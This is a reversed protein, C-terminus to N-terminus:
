GAPTGLVNVVMDTGPLSPPVKTGDQSEVVWGASTHALFRGDPFFYVGYASDAVKAMSGGSADGMFTAGVSTSPQLSVASVVVKRGDASFHGAGTQDWAGTFVLATTAGGPHMVTLVQSHLCLLSGDLSVDELRCSANLEVLVGTSPDLSWAGAPSGFIIRGGGIVIYETLYLKGDVWAIPTLQTGVGEARTAIATMQSTQTGVYITTSGGHQLDGQGPSYSWAWHSGDASFVPSSSFSADSFADAALKAGSAGYFTLSHNEAVWVHHPGVGANGSGDGSVPVAGVVKGSLDVVHLLTQPPQTRTV